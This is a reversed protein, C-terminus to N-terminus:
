EMRGDLRGILKLENRALLAGALWLSAGYLALLYGAVAPVGISGLALLRPVPALLLATGCGVAIYAGSLADPPEFGTKKHRAIAFPQLASVINGLATLVLLIMPLWCLLLPINQVASSVACMGTVAGSDLVLLLAFLALNKGLLLRRRPLSFGFLLAGTGAETGFRNCLLQMQWLLGYLVAGLGLYVKLNYTPDKSMDPALFAFAGLLFMGAPKHLPLYSEPRRLLLLFETKVLAWLQPLPGSRTEWVRPAGRTRPRAAPRGERAAPPNDGRRLVLLGAGTTLGLCVALGGLAGFLDPYDGCRMASVSRAALSSPLLLSFRSSATETLPAFRAQMRQGSSTTLSAFAPPAAICLGVLLLVALAPTEVWRQVRRAYLAGLASLLRALAGTQLALLLFAILAILAQGIQRGLLLNGILPLTLVLALLAPVDLLCALVGAVLIQAPRLAFPRIAAGSPPPGLLAIGGPVLLALLWCGQMLLWLRQLNAEAVRDSMAHWSVGLANGMGFAALALVAVLLLTGLFATPNRAMKHRLVQARVRLLVLVPQWFAM